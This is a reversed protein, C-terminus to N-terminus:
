IPSGGMSNSDQLPLEGNMNFQSSLWSDQEQITLEDNFQLQPFGSIDDDACAVYSLGCDSSSTIEEMFAFGPGIDLLGVHHNGHDDIENGSPNSNNEHNQELPKFSSDVEVCNQTTTVESLKQNDVDNLELQQDPILPELEDFVLRYDEEMISSLPIEQIQSSESQEWVDNNRENLHALEDM